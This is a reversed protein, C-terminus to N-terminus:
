STTDVEHGIQYKGKEECGLIEFRLSLSGVWEQPMIRVFLAESISPSLVNTVINDRGEVCM